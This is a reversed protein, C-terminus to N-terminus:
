NVDPLFKELDKKTIVGLRLIKIPTTTLDVITSSVGLPSAGGDVYAQVTDGFYQVAEQVNLAPPCSTLNASTVALPGALELIKLAIESDPMRLAVTSNTESLDWDTSKKMSLVVTLPGPWFEQLLPIFKEDLEAIQKAQDIGSVLVPPPKHKGRGKAQLISEINEPKKPSAGIGYVTDTPLVILKDNKIAEVAQEISSYKM